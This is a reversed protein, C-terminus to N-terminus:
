GDLQELAEKYVKFDRDSFLVFRVLEIGPQASLFDHVARLAVAAAEAVPYGYIGTSISPFAVSKIKKELAVQLSNRYSGALLLPDKESGSYVPGVTHIVYRAPLRYGGSIKAEGTECGGLKRCEEWLEPGAARHIAGSVGGGPSLANNAANVIAETDQRTIDGRVIEIKAAGVKRTVVEMKNVEKELEIATDRKGAEEGPDKRNKERRRCQLRALLNLARDLQYSIRQVAPDNFDYGPSAKEHLESRLREIIALLLKEAM